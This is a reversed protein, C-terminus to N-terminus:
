GATLAQEYAELAAILEVENDTIADFAGRVMVNLKTWGFASRWDTQLGLILKERELLYKQGYALGLEVCAGEDPVRGDLVFLFVDAELIKARDLSFIAQQRENPSMQDYPPKNIEIGDRQPLFVTLGRRELKEALRANFSREADCFLPGAFYILM